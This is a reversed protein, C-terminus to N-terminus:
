SKATTVQVLSPVKMSQQPTPLSVCHGVRGLSKSVMLLQWSLLTKGLPMAVRFDEWCVLSGNMVTLGIVKQVVERCLMPSPNSAPQPHGLFLQVPFDAGAHVTAESLQM